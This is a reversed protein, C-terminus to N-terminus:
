LDNQARSFRVVKLNLQKKGNQVVDFTMDCFAMDCFTMDCFTMDCFTM